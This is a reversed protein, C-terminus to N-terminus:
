KSIIDFIEKERIKTLSDVTADFSAVFISDCIEKMEVEVTDKSVQYISDILKLEEASFSHELPECAFLM